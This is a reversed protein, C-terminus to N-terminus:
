MIEQSRVCILGGKGLGMEDAILGGAATGNEQQLCWVILLAQYPFLPRDIGGIVFVDKPNLRLPDRM